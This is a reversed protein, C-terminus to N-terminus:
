VVTYLSGWNFKVDQDKGRERLLTAVEYPHMPRELFASLLPLALLNGVKRRKAVARVGDGIVRCRTYPWSRGVRWGEVGELGSSTSAVRGQLAHRTWLNLQWRPSAA